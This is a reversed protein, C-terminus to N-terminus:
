NTTRGSQLQTRFSRRSHSTLTRGLMLHYDTSQLALVPCLRLGQHLICVALLDWIDVIVPPIWTRGDLRRNM